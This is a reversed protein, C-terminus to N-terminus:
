PKVASTLHQEKHDPWRHKGGQIGDKRYRNVAPNAEGEAWDEERVRKCANDPTGVEVQVGAETESAMELSGIYPM